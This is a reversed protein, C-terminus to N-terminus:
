RERGGYRRPQPGDVAVEVLEDSEDGLAGSQRVERESGLDDVVHQHVVGLAKTVLRDRRVTVLCDGGLQHARQGVPRPTTAIRPAKGSVHPPPGPSRQRRPLDDRVLTGGATLDAVVEGLGAGVVPHPVRQLLQGHAIRLREDVVVRVVDDGQHRPGPQTGAVLDGGLDVDYTRTPLCLVRVAVVVEAEELVVDDLAVRGVHVQQRGHQGQLAGDGVRVHGDLAPRRHVQGVGVLEDGAVEGPPEGLEAVVERLVVHLQREGLAVRDEEVGREEVAGPVLTEASMWRTALRSWTEEANPRAM